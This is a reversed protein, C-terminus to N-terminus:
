TGTAANPSGPRGPRNGVRIVGVGNEIALTTGWQLCDQRLQELIRHADAPPAPRPAGELRPAPERNLVLPHLRVESLRGAHFFMWYPGASTPAEARANRLAAPTMLALGAGGCLKLFDRRDM